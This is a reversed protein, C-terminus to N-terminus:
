RYTNEYERSSQVTGYPDTVVSRVPNGHEDYEVTTIMNISDNIMGLDNHITKKLAGNEYFEADDMAITKGDFTVLHRYEELQYYRGNEFSIETLGSSGNVSLLVSPSTVPVKRFYGEWYQETQGKGSESYRDKRVSVGPYAPDEIWEMSRMRVEEPSGAPAYECERIRGNDDYRYTAVLNGAQNYTREESCIKSDGYYVFEKGTNFEPIFTDYYAMGDRRVLRGLEDYYETYAPAPFDIDGGYWTVKRETEDYKVDVYEGAPNTTKRGIIVGDFGITYDVHSFGDHESYRNDISTLVTTDAYYTYRTEYGSTWSAPDPGYLPVYTQKEYVLRGLDDYEFTYEESCHSFESDIAEETFSHLLRGESDYDRSGSEVLKREGSYAVSYAKYDYNVPIYDPTDKETKNKEPENKGSTGPKGKECAASALIMAVVLFVGLVKKIGKM